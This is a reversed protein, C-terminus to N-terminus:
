TRKLTSLEDKRVHLEIDLVKVETELMAVCHTSGSEGM